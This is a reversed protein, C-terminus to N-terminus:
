FISIRGFKVVDKGGVGQLPNQLPRNVLLDGKPSKPTFWFFIVKEVIGLSGGKTLYFYDFDSM